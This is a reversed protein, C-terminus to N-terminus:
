GEVTQASLDVIRKIVANDKYADKTIAVAAVEAMSRVHKDADFDTYIVTDGIKIYGRAAFEMNVATATEPLDVLTAYYSINGETDATRDSFDGQDAEVYDGDYLNDFGGRQTLTSNPTIVTGVTVDVGQAKLEELFAKNVKVTFRIGIPDATRISAGEVMYFVDAVTYSTFIPALTVDEAASSVKFTEGAGIMTDGGKWGLFTKSEQTPATAPMAVGKQALAKGVKYTAGADNWVITASLATRYFTAEVDATTPAMILTTDAALSITSTVTNNKAAFFISSRTSGSVTNSLVSGNTVNVTTPTKSMLVSPDNNGPCAGSRTLTSNDVTVAWTDEDNNFDITHQTATTSTCALTSNQIDITHSVGTQAASADGTRVRIVNYTTATLNCNIIDVNSSKGSKLWYDLVGEAIATLNKIELDGGTWQILRQNSYTSGITNVTKGNGDITVKTGGIKLGEARINADKWHDKDIDAILTVTLETDHWKNDAGSVCQVAQNFYKYYTATAADTGVRCVYGDQAKEADLEALTKNEIFVSTLTVNATAGTNTYAENVAVGNTGDSFESFIKGERTPTCNMVSAGCGTAVNAGLVYDAGNDVVSNAGSIFAATTVSSSSPTLTLTTTGDMTVSTNAENYIIYSTAASANSVLSANNSLTVSANTSNRAWIVSGMNTTTNNNTITSNSIAYAFTGTSAELTLPVINGYTTSTQSSSMTLVSDTISIAHTLALTKSWKNQYVVAYKTTTIDCNDFTVNYPNNETFTADVYMNMFGNCNVTLNQITLAGGKWGFLYVTATTTDGSSAVLNTMSYGNGELTLTAGSAAYMTIGEGLGNSASFGMEASTINKLLTITATAPIKGNKTYSTGGQAKGIAESLTDHYTVTTGVAVKFPKGSAIDETTSLSGATVAVNGQTTAPTTAFASLPVITLMMALTLALCLLKKLKM